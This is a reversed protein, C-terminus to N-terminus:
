GLAELFQSVIVPDIGLQHSFAKRDPSFQLDSNIFQNPSPIWTKCSAHIESFYPSKKFRLVHEPKAGGGPMIIIKDKAKDMVAEIQGIGEDISNKGGSTLIRKFGSQIIPELAENQDRCADFARHFTCPRGSATRVLAECGDQNIRGQADLVGFVFGDAGWDGLLEIDRKMVMLEKQSYCFDGGRPRIMVFIPIDLESKLFKLMGASPTEGGELFNACLELRPIGLRAADLASKVNFVPAELLYSKM